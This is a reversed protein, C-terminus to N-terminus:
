LSLLAWQWLVASLILQILDLPRVRLIHETRASSASMESVSLLNVQQVSFM